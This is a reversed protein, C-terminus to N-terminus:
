RAPPTGDEGANEEPTLAYRQIMPVNAMLFVFTLGILGVTKFLVWTTDSQTRWIIENLVALTLFLGTMRLTLRRWGEPALPVMEGMALALWNRRLVLGLGLMGALLLYIFTPKMKIFREDNLWITLGGFIVVIVLTVLQMVSLKRTRAWLVANAAITLPVFVLTAVILGPYSQGGWHVTRDRYLLFVVLFAVLPGYDLALKLSHPLPARPASAPTRDTM